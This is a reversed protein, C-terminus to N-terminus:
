GTWSERSLKLKKLSLPRYMTGLVPSWFLLVVQRNGYNKVYDKCLGFDCRPFTICYFSLVYFQQRKLSPHCVQDRHLCKVFLIWIEDM